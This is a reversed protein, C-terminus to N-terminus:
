VDLKINNFTIDHNITRGAKNFVLMKTKSINLSLCWDNCYQELINTKQQLGEPSTSLLIVDDAYMLCHLPTNNLLVPDASNQLYETL